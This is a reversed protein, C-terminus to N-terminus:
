LLKTDEGVEEEGGDLRRATSDPDDMRDRERSSDFKKLPFNIFFRHHPLSPDM